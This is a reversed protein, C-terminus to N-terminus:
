VSFEEAKTEEEWEAMGPLYTKVNDFGHNRLISHAVTARVGSQCHIIVEKDKSVKELHDPLTGIFVHDAGPIHNTKYESDGRVDVIQTETNGIKEKLKEITVLDNTQLSVGLDEIDTYYGYINDIGIRMLKRTLEEIEDEECILMIQEQYNLFWGAWTAFSNNGEITLANPLFGEAITEKARADIVRIGNNYAELFKEKSLKPHQPVQVLLSRNVKNLHKMMAFYKPPEPQDKLLLDAFEKEDDYQFAWNQQKEYGVTSSPVAGLSKGCASGAGHAPWVQVYDPLEAFRKLSNYMQKAGKESTDQIGAAEELLDPRGIDGVFVFDGTFVMTPKDTAPHDTLLFSISEPTHGPTHIVELTLNGVKIVDGDRLPQHPFEYLWGEGGEESLYMEAGTVAALERSGALYDAHIHTETIHTINLNKEEAIQLYTDIDRKADIVISEGTEQCGILYSGQALSEDYIHKFFM